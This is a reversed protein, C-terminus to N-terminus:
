YCRCLGTDARRPFVFVRELAITKDDNGEIVGHWENRGREMRGNMRHRKLLLTLEQTVYKDLLDYNGQDAHVIIRVRLTENGTDAEPKVVVYPPPPMKESNEFLVVRKISGERLRAIIDSVM